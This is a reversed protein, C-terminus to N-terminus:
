DLGRGHCPTIRANLDGLGTQPCFPCIDDPNKALTALKAASSKAPKNHLLLCIRPIVGPSFGVNHLDANPPIESMEGDHEITAARPFLYRHSDM